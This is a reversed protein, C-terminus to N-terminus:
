PKRYARLFKKMCFGMNGSDTVVPWFEVPEQPRRHVTVIDGANLVEIVDADMSGTERVNLKVCRVIEFKEDLLENSSVTEQEEIKPSTYVRRKPRNTNDM